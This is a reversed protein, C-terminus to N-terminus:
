RSPPPAQQELVFCERGDPLTHRSLDIGGGFHAICAQLLGQALDEFHRKSSYVLELRDAHPQAVEFGPLEADPYLKRVETHIVAEIGSLFAFAQTHGEFFRPYAQTFREFLHGGFVTLLTPVPLGTRQSLDVVMTVMEEHPYTGVATYAGGHPFDAADLLDDVMNAGFRQEVLGLFETFVVGKV